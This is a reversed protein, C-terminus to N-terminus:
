GLAMGPKTVQKEEERKIEGAVWKTRTTKQPPQRQAQWTKNEKFFPLPADAWMNYSIPEPMHAQERELSSGMYM